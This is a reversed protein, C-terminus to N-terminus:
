AKIIYSVNYTVDTVWPNHSLREILSAITEFTKLHIIQLTQYTHLIVTGNQLTPFETKPTAGEAISGYVIRFKEVSYSLFRLNNAPNETSYINNVQLANERTSGQWHNVGPWGLTGGVCSFHVAGLVVKRHGLTHM